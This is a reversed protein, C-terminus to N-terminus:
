RADASRTGVIEIMTTAAGDAGIEQMEVRMRDRSEITLTWVARTKAGTRPDVAELTYPIVRGGDTCRAEMHEIGTGLNDIWVSTHTERANDYAHVGM